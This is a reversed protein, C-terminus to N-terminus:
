QLVVYLGITAGDSYVSAFETPYNADNQLISLVAGLDHAMELENEIAGLAQEELTV